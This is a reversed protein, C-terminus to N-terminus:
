FKLAVNFGITRCAPNSYLEGFMGDLDNGDSSTEPDIYRNGKHTWTILNNAFVSLTIDSLYLKKVITKPLTYSLTINRLKVFSRKLLYFEGGVGAGYKNFYDQYSQDNLYIPSTNETGDAYVSNPIIFPNRENYLTIDGNGTFQMLNKTRSFMYGGQRVDLAASLTFGYASLSTILGGTWVPNVNKGTDKVEDTLLPQGSAGVILKGDDTYQPLYTYLEGMPKGVEAYMYVADDGASFSNITVKGGELNAPMSVVKNNNKAFNFGLEWRLKRTQVPVTNVLLEIGKNTVKGFNTVMSGFGTSPDVPLTFIQDKTARNYYSFDVTIRNKLFALNLGMEFETTMEPKLSNSGATASAQFANIGNFPFTTLDGAYYGNSFAQVYRPKVLYVGADNGTKGYALRAKGFTLIDNEPLVKTFIWSLTAGPYFYNNKKLPLTSSWDNRATIDLFLMDDWGLTLDGFLGVSRRKSQSESMSTKTAGNSLDWFGTNFTLEETLNSTSTAYRESINVGAMLNVDLRGDIYKDKWNALFDQNIEHRRMYSTSVSGSENMNSPAYGYDNNILADDLEIEPNGIKHDYDSYDFGFRYTLTLQRIPQIDAQVKGFVQKAENHNYHNAIAWYPNTIGYPTFWAEPTNFASSLDKRDVLSIDRAFELLGDIMTAGQFSGVTNTKSKAVNVSSTLKLWDTAQYSGRYALTSRKYTDKDGPIVGDDSSKSFSLYYTMKNDDSVGNLSISHSSLLGTEFFDRINSKLASYKHILQQNNWIPGYVQMSGDFEPGWSGNEIFTQTGNWGQGFRNQMKPLTSVSRWQWSGDYAIEFNKGSGKKGSKTTIMIVGNAARSGYLATAAAGKLITMKDIDNPNISSIGGVANQHQQASVTTQALPVGDVVYLPQNNGNISSIGRIIVSNASGPDSSTTNVQVGAVQGALSSTVDTLAGLTLQENDITQTSYGLTKEERQVGMATVVVENLNVQAQRLFIEMQAKVPIQQTEYGMASVFLHTRGKPVNLSFKGDAKTEAVVNTGTVVVIVNALPVSDVSMVTGNVKMQAWAGQGIGLLLALLILIKKM